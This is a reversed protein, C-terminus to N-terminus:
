NMTQKSWVVTTCQRNLNSWLLGNDTESTTQAAPWVSTCWPRPFSLTLTRWMQLLALGPLNLKLIEWNICIIVLQNAIPISHEAFYVLLAIYYPTLALCTHWFRLAIPIGISTDDKKPTNVISISIPYLLTRPFYPQIHFSLNKHVTVINTM